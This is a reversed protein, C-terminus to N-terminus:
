PITATITLTNTNVGSIRGGNSLAVGNKYWQYQLSTGTATTTFVATAGELLTQNSPAATIVPDTCVLTIKGVIYATNNTKEKTVFESIPNSGTPSTSFGLITLTYKSDGSRFVESPTGTPFTVKDYCGNSDGGYPCPSANNPTEDFGLVYTFQTSLSPNSFALNIRLTVQTPTYYATIPQNHHIFTGVVFAENVNISKSGVNIFEFGSKTGGDTPNGWKVYSTNLGELSTVNTPLVSTWIGTSSSLAFDAGFGVISVGIFVTLAVLGVALATTGAGWWKLGGTRAAQGTM